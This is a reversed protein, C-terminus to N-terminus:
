ALTMSHRSAENLYEYASFAEGWRGDERDMGMELERLQKKKIGSDNFKQKGREVIDLQVVMKAESIRCQIM